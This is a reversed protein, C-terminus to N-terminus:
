GGSFFYIKVASADDFAFHQNGHQLFILTQRKVVGRAYFANNLVPWKVASTNCFHSNQTHRQMLLLFFLDGRLM